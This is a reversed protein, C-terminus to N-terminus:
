YRIDFCEKFRWIREGKNVIIYKKRKPQKRKDSKRLLYEMARADGVNQIRCPLELKTVECLRELGRHLSVGSVCRVEAAEM